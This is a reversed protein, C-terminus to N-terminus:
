NKLSSRYRNRHVNICFRYESGIHAIKLILLVCRLGLSNCVVRAAAQNFGDDCVTGWQRNYYVELRGERPNPGGVLRVTFLSHLLHM